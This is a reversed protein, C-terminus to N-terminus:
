EDGFLRDFEEDAAVMTETSVEDPDDEGGFVFGGGSVEDLLAEAKAKSSADPDYEVLEMVKLGRFVAKVGSTGRAKSTWEVAEIVVMAKTGNGLYLTSPLDKGESDKCPVPDDNRAKIYFGMFGPDNAEHETDFKPKLGATKLAKVTSEDLNGFTGSVKGYQDEKHPNTWYLTCPVRLMKNAM